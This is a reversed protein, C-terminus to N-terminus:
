YIIPFGDSHVPLLPDTVNRSGSIERNSACSEDSLKRASQRRAIRVGEHECETIRSLELGRFFGTLLGVIETAPSSPSSGGFAHVLVM